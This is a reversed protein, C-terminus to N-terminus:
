PNFWLCLRNLNNLVVSHFNCHVEYTKNYEKECCASSSTSEDTDGLDGCERGGSSHKSITAWTLQSSSMM